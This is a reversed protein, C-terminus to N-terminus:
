LLTEFFRDFQVSFGKAKVLKKGKKCNYTTAAWENLDVALM